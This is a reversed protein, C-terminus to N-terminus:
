PASTPIRFSLASEELCSRGVRGIEFAFAEPHSVPEVKQLRPGSRCDAYRGQSSPENCVSPSLEPRLCTAGRGQLCCGYRRRWAKGRHSLTHHNGLSHTPIPWEACMKPRPRLYTLSRFDFGCDGYGMGTIVTFSQENAGRDVRSARITVIRHAGSSTAEPPLSVSISQRRLGRM